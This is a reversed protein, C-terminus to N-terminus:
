WGRCMFRPTGSNWGRDSNLLASSQFSNLSLIWCLKIIHLIVVSIPQTFDNIIYMQPGQSPTYVNSNQDPQTTM